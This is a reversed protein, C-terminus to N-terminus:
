DHQGGQKIGHAAEIARAFEWAGHISYGDVDSVRLHHKFLEMIESDTLGIRKPKETTPPRQEQGIDHAAEVARTIRLVDEWPEKTGDYIGSPLCAEIQDDTLPAREPQAQESEAAKARGAWESVVDLWGQHRVCTAVRKDDADWRCACGSLAPQAQQAATLAARKRDRYQSNLIKDLRHILDNHAKYTDTATTYTNGVKLEYTAEGLAALAEHELKEAAELAEVLMANVQVPQASQLENIANVAVRMTDSYDIHSYGNDNAYRLLNAKLEELQQSTKPITTLHNIVPQAAALQAQLADRQDQLHNTARENHRREIALQSELAEIADVIQETTVDANDHFQNTQQLRAILETHTM